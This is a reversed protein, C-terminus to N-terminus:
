DYFSVCNFIWELDTDAKVYYTSAQLSSLNGVLFVHVLIALAINMFTAGLSELM